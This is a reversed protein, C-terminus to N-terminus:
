TAFTHYISSSRVTDVAANRNFLSILHASPHLDLHVSYKTRYLNYAAKWLNKTRLTLFCDKAKQKLRDNQLKVIIKNAMWHTVM